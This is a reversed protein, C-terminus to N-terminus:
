PHVHVHKVHKVPHHYQPKHHSALLLGGIAGAGAAGGILGLAGLLKHSRRAELEPVMSVVMLVVVLVAISSSTRMTFEVFSREVRM